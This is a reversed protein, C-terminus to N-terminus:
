ISVEEFDLVAFLINIRKDDDSLPLIVREINQTYKNLKRFMHDSFLPRKMSAATQYDELIKNRAEGFDVEDLYMGTYDGGFMEVVRTGVLRVKLRSTPEEVDILIIHPLIKPMELPDFNSRSPISRGERKSEWLQYAKQLMESKVDEIKKEDVMMM